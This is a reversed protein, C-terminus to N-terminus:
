KGGKSKLTFDHTASQGARVTIKTKQTGLNPHWVSMMYIGAPVDTISFTGADTSVSYYPNDAVFLYQHMFNHADCELKVFPSRKVEFDLNFTMGTPQGKNFMTRRARGILEYAHINHMVPDSNKVEVKVGKHIVRSHTIFKAGKQDIAGGEALEPWAKGAKVKELYVVAEAVKGDKVKVVDVERTEDKAIEKDKTVTMTRSKPAAGELIVSGSISGGKKVEVVKYDEALLSAASAGIFIATSLLLSSINLKSIKIKGM